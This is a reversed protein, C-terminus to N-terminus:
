PVNKYANVNNPRNKNTCQMIHLSINNQQKSKEYTMISMEIMRQYIVKAETNSINKYTNEKTKKEVFIQNLFDEQMKLQDPTLIPIVPTVPIAPTIAPIVPIVPTFKTDTIEHSTAHPPETQM